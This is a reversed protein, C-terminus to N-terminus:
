NNQSPVSSYRWNWTILHQIRQTRLVTLTPHLINYYSMVLHLKSCNCLRKCIKFLCIFHLTLFLAGNNHEQNRLDQSVGVCYLKYLGYSFKSETVSTPVSCICIIYKLGNHHPKIWHVNCHILIFM